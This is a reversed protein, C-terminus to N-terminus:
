TIIGTIDAEQVIVLTGDDYDTFRGFRVVNGPNVSLPRRYGDADRRGPGVALVVGRKSPLGAIDLRSGAPEDMRVILVYDNLPRFNDSLPHLRDPAPNQDTINM